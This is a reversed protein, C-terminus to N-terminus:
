SPSVDFFIGHSFSAYNSVNWTGGYVLGGSFSTSATPSTITVPTSWTRFGTISNTNVLTWSPSLSVTKNGAAGSTGINGNVLSPYPSWTFSNLPVSLSSGPLQNGTGSITSVSMSSTVSIQGRANGIVQENASENGVVNLKSYLHAPLGENAFTETWYVTYNSVWYVSASSTPLNPTVGQALVGGLGAQASQTAVANWYGKGTGSGSDHGGGLGFSYTTGNAHLSASNLTNSLNGAFVSSSLLVLGTLSIYIRM